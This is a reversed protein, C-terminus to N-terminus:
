KVEILSLDAINVTATLIVNGDKDYFEVKATTDTLETNANTVDVKAKQQETLLEYAISVYNTDTGYVSEINKSDAVFSTTYATNDAEGSDSGSGAGSNKDGVASLKFSADSREIIGQTKEKASENGKMNNSKDFFDFLGGAYASVCIAAVAAVAAIKPLFSFKPKAKKNVKEMIASHLNEPLNVDALCQMDERFSKIEELTKRCSECNELHSLLLSEANADLEGDAYDYLQEIFNECNM